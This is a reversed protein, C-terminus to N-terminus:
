RVQEEALMQTLTNMAVRVALDRKGHEHLQAALRLREAIPLAQIQEFLKEVETSM